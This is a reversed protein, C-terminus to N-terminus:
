KAKISTRDDLKLCIVAIVAQLRTKLNKNLNSYWANCAYDFFPQIMANCVLRSLPIDLIKSKSKLKKIIM